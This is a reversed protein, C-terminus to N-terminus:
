VGVPSLYFVWLLRSCFLQPVLTPNRWCCCVSIGTVIAMPKAFGQWTNRLEFQQRVAYGALWMLMLLRAPESVQVNIGAVSVWRTAGNVTRGVGPVLVILLLAFAMLVFVFGSNEWIEPPIKLMVAGAALGIVVALVHQKLYYFPEGATSEALSVSASTLM